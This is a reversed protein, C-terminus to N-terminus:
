RRVALGFNKLGFQVAEDFSGFEHIEPEHASLVEVIREKFFFLHHRTGNWGAESYQNHVSHTDKLSKLWRSNEVTFSRWIDLGKEFLPHGEFVEDNISEYRVGCHMKFQWYWGHSREGCVIACFFETALVSIQNSMAAEYTLMGSDVAYESGQLACIEREKGLIADGLLRSEFRYEPTVGFLRLRNLMGAHQERLQELEDQIIELTTM